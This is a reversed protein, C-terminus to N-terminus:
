MMLYYCANLMRLVFPPAGARALDVGILCYQALYCDSILSSCFSAAISCVPPGAGGGSTLSLGPVDAAVNVAAIGAGTSGSVAAAEALM